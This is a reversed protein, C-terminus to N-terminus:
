ERPTFDPCDPAYGLPTDEFLRFVDHGKRCDVRALRKGHVRIDVVKVNTCKGCIDHLSRIHEHAIDYAGKHIRIGRKRRMNLFKRLKRKGKTISIERERYM